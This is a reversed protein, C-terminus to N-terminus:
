LAGNEGQDIADNVVLSVDVIRHQLQRGYYLYTEFVKELDMSEADYLRNFFLNMEILNEKLKKRFVAPTLFISSAFVQEHWKIPM